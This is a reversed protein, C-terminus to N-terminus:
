ADRGSLDLEDLSDHAGQMRDGDPDILRTRRPNQHNQQRFGKTTPSPPHSTLGPDNRLQPLRVDRDRQSPTM